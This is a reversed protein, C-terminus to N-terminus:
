QYNGISSKFTSTLQHSDNLRPTTATHISAGIQISLSLSSVPQRPPQQRTSSSGVRRGSAYTDPVGVGNMEIKWRRGLEAELEHRIWDCSTQFTFQDPLDRGGMAARAVPEGAPLERNRICVPRDPRTNDNNSPGPSVPPLQNRDGFTESLPTRSTHAHSSPAVDGWLKVMSGATETRTRSLSRSRSACVGLLQERSECVSSRRYPLGRGQLVVQVTSLVSVGGSRPV